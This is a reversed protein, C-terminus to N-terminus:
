AGTFHGTDYEFSSIWLHSLEASRRLKCERWLKREIRVIRFCAFSSGDARIKLAHHMQQHFPLHLGPHKLISQAIHLVYTIFQNTQTPPHLKTYLLVPLADIQLALRDTKAKQIVKITTKPM